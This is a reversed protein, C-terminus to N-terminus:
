SGWSNECICYWAWCFPLCALCSRREEYVCRQQGSMAAAMTEFISSNVVMWSLSPSLQSNYMQTQRLPFSILHASFPVLPSTLESHEIKKKEGQFRVHCLDLALFDCNWVLQGLHQKSVAICHTFHRDHHFARPKEHSPTDPLWRGATHPTFIFCTSTSLLM